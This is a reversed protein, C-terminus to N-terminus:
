ITIRPFNQPSVNTLCEVKLLVPRPIWMFKKRLAPILSMAKISFKFVEGLIVVATELPQLDDGMLLIQSM